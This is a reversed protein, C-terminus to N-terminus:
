LVAVAVALTAITWLACTADPADLACAVPGSSARWLACTADPVDLALPDAVAAACAAAEPVDLALPVACSMTWLACTADPADAACAVAPLATTPM